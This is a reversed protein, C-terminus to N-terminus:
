SRHQTPAYTCARCMCFLYTASAGSLCRTGTVYWGGWRDEIPTRHDMPWGQAYENKDDSLPLVSMTVLGPVGHTQPLLHCQLCDADRRVFAPKEQKQQPMSYFHVGQTADFVTAEVTDAGKAWSIAVSDNFYIARPTAKNIHARQLSNESFVLTQSSVPVDLAKLVAPLYGRPPADFALQIEGNEIRENLRVVPDQVPRTSYQIAPHDRSVWINSNQASVLAAGVAAALGAVLTLFRRTSLRELRM